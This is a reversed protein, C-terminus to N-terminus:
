ASKLVAKGTMVNYICRPGTEGSAANLHVFPTKYRRDWHKHDVQWLRVDAAKDGIEIHASRYATWDVHSGLSTDAHQHQAETQCASVAHTAYAHLLAQDSASRYLAQHAWLKLGALVALALVVARM